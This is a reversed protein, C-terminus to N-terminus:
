LLKKAGSYIEEVKLAAAAHGPHQKPVWSKMNEFLPGEKHYEISGKIQFTQKESTIFLLSGKSGSFINKRTEDFYNDAIIITEEDFIAVCNVYIVNPVGQPDVTSFVAPGKRDSWAKKVSEPLNAM